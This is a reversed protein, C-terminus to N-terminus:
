RSCVSAPVMLRVSTSIFYGTRRHIADQSPTREIRKNGLLHGSVM